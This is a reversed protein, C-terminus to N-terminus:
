AILFFLLISLSIGLDKEAVAKLRKMSSVMHGKVANRSIGLQASVQDYSYGETRCLSFVEKARPPLEAVQRQIFAIYEKELIPAEASLTKEEFQTMIEEISAQSRAMAKLANISRNRAATLLYAKISQVNQLSTRVQWLNTFIDNCVDEAVHKSKILRFAFNFVEDRHANYLQTFADASGAM